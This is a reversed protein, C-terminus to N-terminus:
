GHACARVIVGVANKSLLYRHRVFKRVMPTLHLGPEGGVDWMRLSVVDTRPAPTLMKLQELVATKVKKADHSALQATVINLSDKGTADVLERLMGELFVHPGPKQAVGTFPFHPVWADLDLVVTKVVFVLLGAVLVEAGLTAATVSLAFSLGDFVVGLGAVERTKASKTRAARYKEVSVAFGLGDALLGVAVAANLKRVSSGAGDEVWNLLAKSADTTANLDYASGAFDAISKLRELKKELSAPEARSAEAAYQLLFVRALLTAVKVCRSSRAYAEGLLGRKHSFLEVQANFNDRKFDGHVVIRNLLGMFNKQGAKSVGTTGVLTHWLWAMADCASSASGPERNKITAVILPTALGLIELAVGNYKAVGTASLFNDALLKGLPTAQYGGVINPSYRAIAERLPVSRMEASSPVLAQGANGAATALAGVEGDLLAARAKPSQLTLRFADRLTDRLEARAPACLDDWAALMRLYPANDKRLEEIVAMGQGDILTLSFESDMVSQCPGILESWWQKRFITTNEVWTDDARPVVLKESEALQWTVWMSKREAPTKAFDLCMDIVRAGMRFKQLFPMMLDRARRREQFALELQHVQRGLTKRLEKCQADHAFGEMKKLRKSHWARFNDLGASTAELSLIVPQGPGSPHDDPLHSRIWGEDRNIADEVFADNNAPEADILALLEGVLRASGITNYDWLDNRMKSPDPFIWRALSGLPIEWPGDPQDRKTPLYNWLAKMTIQSLDFEFYLRTSASGNDDYFSFPALTVGPVPAIPPSM